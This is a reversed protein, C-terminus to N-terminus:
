AATKLDAAIDVPDVHSSAAHFDDAFSHDILASSSIDNVLFNFLLPSLLSGQPVGMKVKRWNSSKGQYRVRVRRDRLYALLWRKLNPHLFTADVKKLLRHIDVVDFAESLDVCLLGTRFAPKHENFGRVITIFM